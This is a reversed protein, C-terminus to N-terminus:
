IINGEFTPNELCSWFNRIFPTDHIYIHMQQMLLLGYSMKTVIVKFNTMM